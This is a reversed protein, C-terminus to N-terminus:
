VSWIGVFGEAGGLALQCDGPSWSLVSIGDDIQMQGVPKKSAGPLWLACLGGECGSALLPGRHQFSLSGLLREHLDFDLPASGAPGKGSCNWVVVREGAGTALYTSTADWALERVKLPYGSMELDKGTKVYWFHVSADQAGGAICKGDPSWALAIVSGKWAFQNVPQAADPKWFTIGGYGATVFDRGKIGWEIAAITSPQDPYTQLLEGDSSWLRLKKGAATLLLTGKPNWAVLEVWATGADLVALERGAEWIRAKGDQGCSAIRKGAPQWALATTGFGHGALTSAVNGSSADYVAIPGDISAAALSAGDPSWALAIVHDELKTRWRASLSPSQSRKAM